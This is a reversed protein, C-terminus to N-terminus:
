DFLLLWNRLSTLDECVSSFSIVCLFFLCPFLPGECSMSALFYLPSAPRVAVGVEAVALCVCGERHSSHVRHSVGYMAALMFHCKQVRICTYDRRLGWGAASVRSPRWPQSSGTVWGSAARSYFSPPCLASRGEHAHM